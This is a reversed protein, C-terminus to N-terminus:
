SDFFPHGKSLLMGLHMVRILAIDTIAKLTAEFSKFLTSQLVSTCDTIIIIVNTILVHFSFIKGFLLEISHTLNM